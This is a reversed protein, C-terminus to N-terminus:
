GWLSPDPVSMVGHDYRIGNPWDSSILLPGDLDVVECLRALVMAPAMGLSSGVMCGVMLRMGAAKAAYAFDLAATLGGCKDLKINVFDYRDVLRPLDDLTNAPEDACVFLPLKLGILGADVKDHVPQELLDVNFDRLAPALECLQAVSWAQNADVVLNAHPSGKRVAAIAALPSDSGVKIKLWPHDILERARAEYEALSRIAITVATVVPGPEIGALEWVTTRQQKAELDWLAADLANRAAGPGLLTLLQHRTAGAAIQAEVSKIQAILGDVTEGRHKVCVGEGRGVYGGDVISVMVAESFTKIGSSIVFPERLSWTRTTVELKRIMAPSNHCRSISYPTDAPCISYVM